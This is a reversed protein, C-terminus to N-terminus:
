GEYLMSRLVNSADKLGQTISNMNKNNLEQLTCVIYSSYIQNKGRLYNKDLDYVEDMKQISNERRGEKKREKKGEKRKYFYDSYNEINKEQEYKVNFEAWDPNKQNPKTQKPKDTLWQEM